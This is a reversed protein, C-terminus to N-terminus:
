YIFPILKRVRRRYEAYEPFRELLWGEERRCKVDAFLFLIVVYVLTLWGHVFLAWGLGFLVGGGYMPHRVLGYPGTQVLVGGERPFPLPTLNLHGLRVISVLLLSFGGAMLVAGLFASAHPFPFPRSPFGFVTRPGALVLAILAIQLVVLWEGRAGKWWPQRGVPITAM